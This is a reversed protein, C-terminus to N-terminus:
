APSHGVPGPQSESDPPLTGLFQAPTMIPIGRFPHLILLDQDGTVLCSARGSVALELFKDDKPDRCARVEEGIEVLTAEHLLKILCQDREERTLYRDFKERGLV